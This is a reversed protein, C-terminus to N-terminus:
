ADGEVSVPAPPLAPQDPLNFSFTSGQGPTSQLWIRGGHQEVASRTVSLGIGSGEYQSAHHLRRFAEFIREHYQEEIGIGNDQVHFVWGDAQRGASVKVVPARGPVHFKLANGILNLFVHHLLERNATVTPLSAIRLEGGVEELRTQLEQRVDQLLADLDIASVTRTARQVRSFVLLDQILNKLRQTASMTFEIYQDARADLQGSYRRALLETYSGITRLPEQLDHSAVYAFRELERNSRQLNLNAQELQANAQELTARGAQLQRERDAVAVAMQHVQGSLVDLERVRLPAIRHDYEGSAIRRANDTLAGMTHSLLRIVRRGAWLLLLMGLLLGLPVLLQVRGLVVRSSTVALTLRNNEFGIMDTLIVKAQRTRAAGKGNEVLEVADALSRQRATIEPTAAERQWAAIETLLLTLKEQQRPAIIMPRYQAVHRQFDAKGQTYPELFDPQGMIIYGREGNEMSSVDMLMQRLLTLRTQSARILETDRAITQVGSAMVVLLLALLLAPLLLPELLLATLSRSAPAAEPRNERGSPLHPRPGSRQAM